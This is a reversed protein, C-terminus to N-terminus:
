SRFPILAGLTAVAFSGIADNSAPAPPRAVTQVAPMVSLLPAAIGPDPVVRIAAILQALDAPTSGTVHVAAAFAVFGPFGREMRCWPCTSASRFYHHAPSQRCPVLEVEAEKLLRVWESAAPRGRASSGPGFATEFATALNPPLDSLTPLHPPPEMGTRRRDTSFAFRFEKIAKEYPLSGTGLFDGIFPHRGMFLLMFIIVGLGFSDHNITRVVEDPRRGQLEPPTFDETAVICRFLDSSLTFQFSDADILTTRADDSILIGSHNIDGIVCGKAHVAAVANALNIASRVLFCFNAKAFKTRRSSPSYLEHVPNRGRVKEMTFGAFDGNSHYLPKTPFAVSTIGDQLKARVMALVKDRRSRAKDPFYIKAAKTPDGLIEYVAGEGGRGLLKLLSVPQKQDDVIGKPISM